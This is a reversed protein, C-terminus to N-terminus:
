IARRSGQAGLEVDDLNRGVHLVRRVGRAMLQDLQRDLLVVVREFGIEAALLGIGLRQSRQM